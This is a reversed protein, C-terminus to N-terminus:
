VIIVPIELLRTFRSATTPTRAQGPDANTAGITEEERWRKMMMM